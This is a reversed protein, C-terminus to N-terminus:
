DMTKRPRGRKRKQPVVVEDQERVDLEIDEAPVITSTFAAPGAVDLYGEKLIADYEKRAMQHLQQRTLGKGKHHKAVMSYVTIYANTQKKPKKRRKPAPMEVAIDPLEVALAPGPGDLQMKSSTKKRKSPAKAPHLADIMVKHAAWRPGAIKRMEGLSLRGQHDPHEEKWTGVANRLVDHYTRDAGKSRGMQRVENRRDRTFRDLGHLWHRNVRDPDDEAIFQEWRAQKAKGRRRDGHPLLERKTFHWLAEKQGILNRTARTMHRKLERAYAKVYKRQANTLAPNVLHGLVDWYKRAIAAQGEQSKVKGVTALFDFVNPVNVTKKRRTAEKVAGFEIPDPLWGAEIDEYEM